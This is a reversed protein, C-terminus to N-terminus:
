PVTVSAQDAPQIEFTCTVNLIRVKNQIGACPATRNVKLSVLRNELASDGTFQGHNACVRIKDTHRWISIHIDAWAGSGPPIFFDASLDVIAALRM